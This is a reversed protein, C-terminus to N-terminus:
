CNFIQFNYFVTAQCQSTAVQSLLAVGKGAHYHCHYLDFMKLQQFPVALNVHGMPTLWSWKKKGEWAKNCREIEFNNCEQEKLKTECAYEVKKLKTHARRLCQQLRRKDARLQQCTDDKLKLMRLLEMVEDKDCHAQSSGQSDEGGTDGETEGVAVHAKQWIERQLRLRKSRAMPENRDDPRERRGQSTESTSALDHSDSSSRTCSGSADSSSTGGCMHTVNSRLFSVIEHPQLCVGITDFFLPALVEVYYTVDEPGRAGADGHQNAQFKSATKSCFESFRMWSPTSGKAILIEWVRALGARSITLHVQDDSVRREALSILVRQLQPPLAFMAGANARVSVHRHTTFSLFYPPTM